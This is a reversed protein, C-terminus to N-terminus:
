REALRQRHARVPQADDERRPDVLEAGAQEEDVIRGAVADLPHERAFELGGVRSPNKRAPVLRGELRSKRQRHGHRAREQRDAVHRDRALLRDRRVQLLDGERRRRFHRGIQEYQRRAFQLPERRIRIADRDAHDGGRALALLPTKREVVGYFQEGPEVIIEACFIRQGLEIQDRHGASEAAGHLVPAADGKEFAPQQEIGGGIRIGRPAADEGDERVLHRMLPEAIEDGHAPPVVEPEILAKGAPHLGLRRLMEIRLPLGPEVAVALLLERQREVRPAGRMRDLLRDGVGAFGHRREVANGVVLTLRQDAHQFVIEALLRKAVADAFVHGRVGVAVGGRGIQPPREFTRGALRHRGNGRGEGLLVAHRQDDGLGAAAAARLAHRQPLISKHYSRRAAFAVTQAGRAQLM